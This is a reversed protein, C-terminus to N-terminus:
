CEGWNKGVALDVVLPIDLTFISEMVRKVCSKLEELEEDPAEFILEDHVQLLMFSRMKNKLLLAEIELMALKILDAATGQLPTNIALREAAAKAIANPSNIDTIERERGLMTVSKGTARARQINEEIYFSVKPYRKFYSEIFAAAQRVDIGLEQSLGYAQQGYVIGFNIAKAQDRQQYTVDSQEVNFVLAATARHIDRNEQFAKILEPDKSLHALLRLEIQSYDAALFSWSEQQPLFATRIKKGLQTRVPINQLNPDQCSLRGTAAVVQNFTPHIRKTKFDIDSPLTELYTSRLKDLSRWEIIKAAIEHELALVELVEARTSLGTATKKLGKIGLKEFLIYSLQKPSSINFEEGALNFIQTELHKQDKEMERNMKNLLEKDVFIGRREMELLVKSLPLELNLLLPDLKRKYIEKELALKLRFTYDVDECCYNSVKPVSVLDMTLQKKGTGILEKIDTKVKGFYELCLHDLSHRRAHSHLLYSALITDFIINKVEIGENKLIHQDYKVNHGFFMLSPDEFLAKLADLVYKRNLNGNLPVYYAEKEKISFGCGVLSARMPLVDTTETDFAIQKANRLHELLSAFSSEDNVLHYSVTETEKSEVLTDLEKVLTNFQMELYFDRLSAIDASKKSFFEPDPPFEVDTYITALRKSLAAIEHAEKLIKQKSEGKVKDANALLNELTGFEQLLPVTTKPGFGKIGPINDSTDGVIALYDVIQEPTVGYIEEVKQRDILLNDKWTNIIFIHDSVLQALDKDSTCLFVDFGNKEAALAISGMTDDAEVGGVEMIAMGSLLCFEKARQIQGPLDDYARVRNAKYKEYIEIRQKKNDPGDFVAVINKPGFDKFIKIVSRIFGYLAGTPEAKANTLSPLAFYARFIYGSVDLIYLKKERM